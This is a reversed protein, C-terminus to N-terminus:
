WLGKQLVLRTVIKGGVPIHNPGRGGIIIDFQYGSDGPYGDLCLGSYLLSYYLYDFKLVICVPSLLIRAEFPQSIALAERWFGSEIQLHLSYVNRNRDM